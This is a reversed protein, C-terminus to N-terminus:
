TSDLVDDQIDIDMLDEEADAQDDSSVENSAFEVIDLDDHDRTRLESSVHRIQVMQSSRVVPYTLLFGDKPFKQSGSIDIRALTLSINSSISYFVDLWSSCAWLSDTQAPHTSQSEM